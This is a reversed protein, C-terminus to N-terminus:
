APANKEKEIHRCICNIDTKKDAQISLQSNINNLENRLEDIESRLGQSESPSSALNRKILLKFDAELDTLKTEVRQKEREALSVDTQM